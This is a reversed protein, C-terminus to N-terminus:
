LEIISPYIVSSFWREFESKINISKFRLKGGMTSVPLTLTEKDPYPLIDISETSQIHELDQIKNGIQDVTNIIKIDPSDQSVNSSSKKIDEVITFLSGIASTQISYQLHFDRVYEGINSRVDDVKSISRSVKKCQKQLEKLQDCVALAPSKQFKWEQLKEKSVKQDTLGEDIQRAAEQITSQIKVLFDENVSKDDKKYHEHKAVGLLCDRLLVTFDRVIISWEFMIYPAESEDIASNGELISLFDGISQETKQYLMLADIDELPIQKWYNLAQSANIRLKNVETEM